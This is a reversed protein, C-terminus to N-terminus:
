SDHKKRMFLKRKKRPTAKIFEEAVKKSPGVANGHAVAQM